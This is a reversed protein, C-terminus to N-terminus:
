IIIGMEKPQRLTQKNKQQKKKLHWSNMINHWHYTWPHTQERHKGGRKMATKKEVLFKKRTKDSPELGGPTRRSGTLQDPALTSQVTITKGRLITGERQWHGGKIWPQIPRCYSKSPRLPGTPAVLPPGPSRPAAQLPMLFVRSLM